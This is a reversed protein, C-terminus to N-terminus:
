GHVPADQLGGVRGLAVGATAARREFRVEFEREWRNLVEQEGPREVDDLVVTAGPALRAHLAPLAPYRALVKDATDAPLEDVVLLDVPEGALAADLGVRLLDDDYWPLGAQGHPHAALPVHLVTTRDALGERVLQDSVWRAWALDHEVAVHRHGGAPWRQHLLRALLVTSTGSGVEVVCRRDSLVVDNCVAVLGAVRMTGAGWPLYPGPATLCSLAAAAADESFTRQPPAAGDAWSAPAPRLAPRATESTPVHAHAM